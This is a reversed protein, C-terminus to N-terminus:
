VGRFSYGLLHLLEQIALDTAASVHDPMKRPGYLAGGLFEIAVSRLQRTQNARGAISHIAVRFVQSVL